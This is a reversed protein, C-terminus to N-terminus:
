FAIKEAPYSGVQVLLINHHTTSQIDKLHLTTTSVPTCRYLERGTIDFIRLPLPTAATVTLMGDRCVLSYNREGETTGDIGVPFDEVFNHFYSWRERYSALSGPRIHVAIDPDIGEFTNQEVQPATQEASLITNVETCGAFAGVDISIVNKPLVIRHLGTIGKFTYPAIRYTNNPITTSRCGTVLRCNYKEFIANCSSRSDFDTNASDVTITDLSTCCAFPNDGIFYVGAPIHISHLGTCGEFAFDHIENLAEPLAIRDFCTIGAFALQGIIRVSEPIVTTPCAQQLMDRSTLIVANCGERSDYVANEEAINLSTLRPCHSFSYWGIQRVSAPIHISTLSDCETFAYNGIAKLSDPLTITQLGTIGQFAYSYINRVMSPITSSRCGAVLTSDMTNVIANCGLPSAYVANRSDIHISVLSTCYAFAAEGITAVTAPIDIGTIHRCHSFAGQVIGTLAVTHRVSDYPEENDPLQLMEWYTVSDPLSIHGSLTTDQWLVAAHVPSVSLHLTQGSPITYELNQASAMVATTLLLGLVTKKIMIKITQNDSQM